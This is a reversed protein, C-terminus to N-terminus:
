KKLGVAIQLTEQADKVTVTGDGDVDGKVYQVVAAEFGKARAQKALAEANAKNAFAGIQVRYITGADTKEPAADTQKYTVGVAATLGEAIAQAMADFKSDFIGNDKTNDIFGVELLCSGMTTVRNVAYDANANGPYGRKVGRDAYGTAKVLKELIGNAANYTEGGTQVKSYVWVEAGTAKEPQFANRHVSIFYDAGWANAERCRGTLDPNVDTMRSYKVEIGQAAVLKGVALALRLTDDQEKRGKYTAGISDGGHGADIYIKPM